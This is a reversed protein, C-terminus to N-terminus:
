KLNIVIKEIYLAGVANNWITFHKYNGKSFDYTMTFTNLPDGTETKTTAEIANTVPHAESGAYVSFVTPTEYKALGKVVLVISKIDKSFATENFIFGQKAADTANGQVQICGTFDGNAACVKAGKFIINDYNWTLWTTADDTAQSGYANTTLAVSGQIGQEISSITMGDGAPAVNGGENGGTDDGGEGAVTEGNLSYLYAKGQVTEPTNGMYNTVKGCIVVEDGEKLLIGSTYKVNGLYLARFVYFQGNTTGDDSIYFTANGYQTGYQEKISVVKGKVYIDNESEAGSALSSALNNAAVSNYPSELTGNGTATGENDGGQSGGDATKGNLSYLYAKGQSTEPTNGKYNVVKGCVVVEDGVKIQDQGETYKQNGIYLARWVKFTNSSTGDESITFSANGYTTTYEEEISVIKGKIYIDDTSEVDADLASTYNIAALCNFPDEATGTGTAEGTPQDTNGGGTGPYDYPAPVDECSTFTMATMALAFLSLTLKKM